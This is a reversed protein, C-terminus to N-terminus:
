KSKDEVSWESWLSGAVEYMVLEKSHRTLFTRIGRLLSGYLTQTLYYDKGAELKMRLGVVDKGPSSLFYEGPPLYFFVYGGAGSFGVLTDNAYLPAAGIFAKETKPQPFITAPTTVVILAKDARPEPLPHQKNTPILRIKLKKSIPLTEEESDFRTRAKAMTFKKRDVSEAKEDFVPVFVRDGFANKLAKLVRPVSKNDVNILYQSAAGDSKKYDFLVFHDNDFPKDISTAIADGFLVGGALVGLIGAGFGAKHGFTNVEVFIKQIDDYSVDLPRQASRVRLRRATADLTLDADKDDMKRERDKVFRVKIDSFTEITQGFLIRPQPLFLFAFSLMILTLKQSKTNRM